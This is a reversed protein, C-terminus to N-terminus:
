FCKAKGQKPLERTTSGTSAAATPEAEQEEEPRQEGPHAPLREAHLNKFFNYYHHFLKTDWIHFTQNKKGPDGQHAPVVSSAPSGPGRFEPFCAPNNEWIIAVCGESLVQNDPRNSSPNHKSFKRPKQQEAAQTGPPPPLPTLNIHGKYFFVTQAFPITQSISKEGGQSAKLEEQSITTNALSYKAEQRKGGARM